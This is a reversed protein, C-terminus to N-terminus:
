SQVVHLLGLKESRTLIAYVPSVKTYKETNTLDLTM